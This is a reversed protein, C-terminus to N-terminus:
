NYYLVNLNQSLRKFHFVLSRKVEQEDESTKLRDGFIIRFYVNFKSRKNRQGRVSSRRKTQSKGLILYGAQLM